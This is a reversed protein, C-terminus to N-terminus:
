PCAAFKRKEGSEPRTAADCREAVSSSRAVLRPPHRHVKGVSTDDPQNLASRATRHSHHLVSRPPNVVENTGRLYEGTGFVNSGYGGLSGLPAGPSVPVPPPQPVVLSSSPNLIPAPPIIARAPGARLGNRGVFFCDRAFSLLRTPFVYGRDKRASRVVNHPIFAKRIASIAFPRKLLASCDLTIRLLNEWLRKTWPAIVLGIWAAHAALVIATM